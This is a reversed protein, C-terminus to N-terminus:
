RVTAVSSVAGQSLQDRLEALEAASVPRIVPPDKPIPPLAVWYLRRDPAQLYAHVRADIDQAPVDPFADGWAVEPAVGRQMEARYLDFGAGREKSLWHILAWAAGEYAPFGSAGSSDARGDWAMVDTSISFTRTSWYRALASGNVEGLGVRASEEHYAFPLLNEGLGLLLWGPARPDLQRGLQWVVGKMPIFVWSHPEAGARYSWSSPRGWIIIRPRPADVIISSHPFRTTSVGYTWDLDVGNDPCVVNLTTAPAAPHNPWLAAIAIARLEELVSVGLQADADSINTVLQVHRTRLVKWGTASQADAQKATGVPASSACAVLWAGLFLCSLTRM